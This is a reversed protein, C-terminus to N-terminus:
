AAEEDDDDESFEVLEDVKYALNELGTRIGIVNEVIVALSYCLASATAAGIALGVAILPSEELYQLIFGAILELFALFKLFLAAGTGPEGKIRAPYSLDEEEEFEGVDAELQNPEDDNRRDQPDQDNM